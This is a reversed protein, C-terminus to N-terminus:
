HGHCRCNRVHKSRRPRGRLLGHGATFAARPLEGWTEYHTITVHVGEDTWEPLFPMCGTAHPAYDRHTARPLYRTPDFAASKGDSRSPSGDAMYGVGEGCAVPQSGCAQLGCTVHRARRTERADRAARREGHCSLRPVCVENGTTTRRIRLGKLRAASNLYTDGSASVAETHIFLRGATRSTTAPSAM